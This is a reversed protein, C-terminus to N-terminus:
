GGIETITDSLLDVKGSKSAFASYPDNEVAWAKMAKLYQYRGTDIPERAVKPWISDLVEGPDRRQWEAWNEISRGGVEIHWRWSRDLVRGTDPDLPPGWWIRVPVDVRGVRRWQYTGARFADPADSAPEFFRELDM